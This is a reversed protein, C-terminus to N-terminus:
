VQPLVSMVQHRGRGALVGWSVTMFGDKEDLGFGVSRGIDGCSGFEGTYGIRGRHYRCEVVVRLMLSFQWEWRV